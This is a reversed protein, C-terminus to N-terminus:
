ALVSRKSFQSLKNKAFCQQKKQPHSSFPHPCPEPFRALGRPCPSHTVFCMKSSNLTLWDFGSLNDKGYQSWFAAPSTNNSFIAPFKSFGPMQLLTLTWMILPCFQTKQNRKAPHSQLRRPLPFFFHVIGFWFCSWSDTSSPGSNFNLLLFLNTKFCWSNRKDNFVWGFFMEHCSKVPLSRSAPYLSVTLEQGWIARFAERPFYIQLCSIVTYQSKISNMSALLSTSIRTLTPFIKCFQQGHLPDWFINPCVLLLFYCIYLSLAM